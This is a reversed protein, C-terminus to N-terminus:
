SVTPEREVSAAPRTVARGATPTRADEDSTTDPFALPVPRPVPVVTRDSLGLVTLVQSAQEPVNRLECPLRLQECAMSCQVLFAVGSSDIFTVEALDVVVPEDGSVVRRMARSADERLAADIEGTLRVRTCGHEDHVTITGYASM